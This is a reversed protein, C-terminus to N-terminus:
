AHALFREGQAVARSLIQFLAILLRILSPDTLPDHCSQQQIGTMITSLGSENQLYAGLSDATPDPGIDIGPDVFQASDSQNSRIPM